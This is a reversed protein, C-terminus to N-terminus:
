GARGSCRRWWATRVRVGHRSWHKPGRITPRSACSVCGRRWRRSRRPSRRGAARNIALPELWRPGIKQSGDMAIQALRHPLAPNAFRALLADAYADLDQAPAREVPEARGGRAILREILPRIAPDAVAEHVHAHGRALGLYALASHAGNLMRLKAAEYACTPSWRRGARRGARARVPSAM